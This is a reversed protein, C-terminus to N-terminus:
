YNNNPITKKIIGGGICINGLYFVASQGLAIGHIPYQFIIKYYKNNKHKPYITCWILKQQQSRIKIKYFYFVKKNHKIHIFHIKHLYIGYSFLKNHKHNTSIILQNTYINKYIVYFPKQKKNKINLNKRQGITYYFLGQHQGVINNNYIIDGPIDPLYNKIFTTFKKNGIFCIGTSDKKQANILNINKAIKRIQYKYYNGLPFIFKKIYKQKLTYLFYSQDKQLDKSTYIIFLNKKKITRIYHGTAILDYQFFKTIFKILLNFKIEKNCWIDPNPTFGKKLQKLFKKFVKEWYEYTLDLQLFHIKYKLSIKKAYLYDKYTNCTKNINKNDWCKIYICQIITYGLQKLIWICVASDVGGSLSIIVKIPKVITFIM